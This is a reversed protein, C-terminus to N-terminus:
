LGAKAFAGADRARLQELTLVHGKDDVFRDVPLKGERLLKARSAGLIEVQMSLPITKIWDGYTTRGFAPMGRLRPITTSRCNPHAPPRPGKGIPFVEGDRSACILSTRNDLTSVWEVGIILASERGDNVTRYTEEAAVASIHTIATRVMTEAGRRSIELVGDSYGAARTGRIRRVMQDITESEAYGQRIAERVRRASAAEADNLWERLIKGQFPRAAAAAYVQAATLPGAGLEVSIAMGEAAHRVLASQFQAEVGGLDTMAVTMEGGIRNWGAQQMGRIQDLLAELDARRTINASALQGVVDADVRNLLAVIRRVQSNSYRGLAVRHLVAADHVGKTVAEPM